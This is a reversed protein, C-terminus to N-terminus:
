PPLYLNGLIKIKEQFNLHYGQCCISDTKGKLTLSEKNREFFIALLYQLRYLWRKETM